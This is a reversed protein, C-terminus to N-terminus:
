CQSYFYAARLQVCWAKEVRCLGVIRTCGRMEVRCLGWLRYEHWVCYAVGCTFEIGAMSRKRGVFCMSPRLGWGPSEAMASGSFCQVGM